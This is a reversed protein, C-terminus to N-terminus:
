KAEKRNVLSKMYNKFEALELFMQNNAGGLQCVQIIMLELNISIAFFRSEPNVLVYIITEKGINYTTSFFQEKDLFNRINEITIGKRDLTKNVELLMKDNM